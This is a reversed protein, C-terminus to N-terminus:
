RIVMKKSFHMDGCVLKVILIQRAFNEVSLAAHIGNDNTVKQQAVIRGMMDCVTIVCTKGLKPSLCDIYITGNECECAVMESQSMDEIGTEDSPIFGEHLRSMAADKYFYTVNEESWVEASNQFRVRFSHQGVSYDNPDLTHGWTLVNIKNAFSNQVGQKDDAWYSKIIAVSEGETKVYKRTILIPEEHVPGFDIANRSVRYHLRHMGPAADRFNLNTEFYGEVDTAASAKIKKLNKTDHDDDLWYAIYNFPGNPWRMVMASYVPSYQNGYAAVRM